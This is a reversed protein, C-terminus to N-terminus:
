WLQFTFHLGSHDSWRIEGDGEQGPKPVTIMGPRLVHIQLPELGETMAIRDLRKRHSIGQRKEFGWTMGDGKTTDDGYLRIWADVLNNNVVLEQDGPSMANFDGAALGVNHQGDAQCDVTQRLMSAVIAMQEKRYRFTSGLSDLHVNILRLRQWSCQEAALLMQPSRIRRRALFVDTCLADRGYQSPFKLRHVPGVVAGGESANSVFFAKSLLTMTTFPVNAFATKDEADTTLFDARIRADCLLADRANSTVEQLFIIDSRTSPDKLLHSVIASARAVTRPSFADINWTVLRLRVAKAPQALPSQLSYSPVPVWRRTSPNFTSLIRPLRPTAM